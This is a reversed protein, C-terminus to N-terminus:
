GIEIEWQAIDDELANIIANKTGKKMDGKHRAITVPRLTSFRSVWQGHSGSEGRHIRGLQKAVSELERYGVGGRLRLRQLEAAIENLRESEM